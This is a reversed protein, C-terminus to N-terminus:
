LVSRIAKSLKFAVQTIDFNGNVAQRGTKGM